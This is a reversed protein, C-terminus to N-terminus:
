PGPASGPGKEYRRTRCSHSTLSPIEIRNGFLLKLAAVIPHFTEQFFPLQPGQQGIRRRALVLPTLGAMDGIQRSPGVIVADHFRHHHHGALAIRDQQSGAHLKHELLGRFHRRDLVHPQHICTSGLATAPWRAPGSSLPGRSKAPWVRAMRSSFPRPPSPTPTTPILVM